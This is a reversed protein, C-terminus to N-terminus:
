SSAITIAGNFSELHNYSGERLNEYVSIVDAPFGLDEIAHTLDGIDLEEIFVGVDLADLLSESGQEVLDDYYGQLVPLVFNGVEDENVESIDIGYTECLGQAADIHRQESLQISAFTNEKPYLKGLTIYVDRALKEEQYIFFLEDKQKATLKTTTSNAAHVSSSFLAISSASAVLMKSLFGRRENQNTSKNM